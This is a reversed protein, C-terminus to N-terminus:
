KFFRHGEIEFLFTLDTEFWNATRKATWKPAYFYLAGQSNDECAGTLVEHVAQRTEADPTYKDKVINSVGSFQGPAYIVDRITNQKFKSSRVRNIVVQAVLRKHELSCNGVEHQVLRGLLEEDSYSAMYPTQKKSAAPKVPITTIEECVALNLNGRVLNAEGGVMPTHASSICGVVVTTLLVLMPIFFKLRM